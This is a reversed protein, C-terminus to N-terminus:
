YHSIFLSTNQIVASTTESIKSMTQGRLSFLWVTKYAADVAVEMHRM